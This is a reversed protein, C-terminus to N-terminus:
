FFVSDRAGMRAAPTWTEPLALPRVDERTIPMHDDPCGPLAYHYGIRAYSLGPTPEHPYLEMGFRIGTRFPLPDLIHWRFNTM